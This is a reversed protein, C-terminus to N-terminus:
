GAAHAHVGSPHDEVRIALAGHCSAAQPLVSANVGGASGIWPEDPVPFASRCIKAASYLV